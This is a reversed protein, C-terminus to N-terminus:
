GRRPPPTAIEPVIGAFPVAIAASRPLSPKLAPAPVPSGAVAIAACMAQCDMQSSSPAEREAPQEDCHGMAMAAHRAPMESASAPMGGMGFPMLVLAVLTLFKLLVSTM